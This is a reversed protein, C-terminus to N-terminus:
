NPNLSIEAPSYGKMFQTQCGQDLQEFEGVFNVSLVDQTVSFLLHSHFPSFM